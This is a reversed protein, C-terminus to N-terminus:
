IFSWWNSKDKSYSYTPIYILEYVCLLCLLSCLIGAAIPTLPPNKYWFRAITLCIKINNIDCMMMMRTYEFSFGVISMYSGLFLIQCTCTFNNHRTHMNTWINLCIHFDNFCSYFNIKNSKREYCTFISNLSCSVSVLKNQHFIFIWNM